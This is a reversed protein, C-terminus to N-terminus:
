IDTSEPVYREESLQAWSNKSSYSGISSVPSNSDDTIAVAAAAASKEQFELVEVARVIETKVKGSNTVVRLKLESDHSFRIRYCCSPVFKSKLTGELIRAINYIMAVDLLASLQFCATFSAISAYKASFVGCVFASAVYVGLLAVVTIIKNSMVIMMGITRRRREVCMGGGEVQLTRLTSVVSCGSYLTFAGQYILLVNFVIRENVFHVTDIGKWFSPINMWVNCSIELVLSLVLVTRYVNMHGRLTCRKRTPVYSARGPIVSSTMQSWKELMFTCALIIGWSGFDMIIDEVTDPIWGYMDVTGPLIRCIFRSAWFVILGVLCTVVANGFVYLCPNSSCKTQNRRFTGRSEQQKKLATLKVLYLSVIMYLSHIFLPLLVAYNVIAPVLTHDYLVHVCTVSEEEKARIRKNNTCLCTQKGAEERCTALLDNSGVPSKGTIVCDTCNSVIKRRQIAVARSEATCLFTCLLAGCLLLVFPGTRRGPCFEM